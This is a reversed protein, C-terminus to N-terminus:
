ASYRQERQHKELAGVRERVAHQRERFGDHAAGRRRQHSASTPSKPMARLNGTAGSLVCDDSAAEGQGRILPGFDEGSAGYLVIV